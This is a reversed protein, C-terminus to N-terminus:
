PVVALLAAANERARNLGVNTLRYRAGRRQGTKLIMAAEAYPNMIKDLRDITLGSQKLEQSLSVATVVTTGLFIKHGLLLLLAAQGERNDGQPLASLSLTSGDRRIIRSLQQAERQTEVAGSFGFEGELSRDVLEEVPVGGHSGNESPKAAPIEYQTSNNAESEVRQLFSAYDKQVAEPPGEAEFEHQGVRVKLKYVDM